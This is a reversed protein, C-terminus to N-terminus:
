KWKVFMIVRHLAMFKKERNICNCPSLHALNANLEAVFPIKGLLVRRFYFTTDVAIKQIISNNHDFKLKRMCM